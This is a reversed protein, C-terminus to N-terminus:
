SPWRSPPGRHGNHDRAYSEQGSTPHHCLMTYSKMVDQALSSQLPLRHLGVQHCDAVAVTTEPMPNTVVQRTIIYCQTVKMVDQALSSQLPLKHLGDQHCDTIAVSTEPM